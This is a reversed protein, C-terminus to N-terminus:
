NNQFSFSLGFCYNGDDYIFNNLGFNYPNAFNFNLNNTVRGQTGPMWAPCFNSFCKVLSTTLSTQNKYTLESFLRAITLPMRDAPYFSIKHGIKAVLNSTLSFKYDQTLFIGSNMIDFGPGLINYQSFTAINATQPLFSFELKTNFESNIGDYQYDVGAHIRGHLDFRINSEPAYKEVDGDYAAHFISAYILTSLYFNFQYNPLSLKKSLKISSRSFFGKTKIDTIDDIPRQSYFLSQGFDGEILKTLKAKASQNLSIVQTQDSANANGYFLAFKGLRTKTQASIQQYSDPLELNLEELDGGSGKYLMVGKDSPIYLEVRNDANWLYFGLGM